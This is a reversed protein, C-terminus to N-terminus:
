YIYKYLIHINYILLLQVVWKCLHALDRHIPPPPSFEQMTFISILVEERDITLKCLYKIQIRDGADPAYEPPAIPALGGWPGTFDISKLHNEPGLPHM